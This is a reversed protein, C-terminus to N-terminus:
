LSTVADDPLFVAKSPYKFTDVDPTPAEDAPDTTTMTGSIAKADVTLTLYGHKKHEEAILRAETDPDVAGAAANMGHLHHYGGHGIVLFPTPGSEVIGKEIRQYNHVHGTLVLNPVRRSDNIAHQVADAM